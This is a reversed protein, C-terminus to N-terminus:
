LKVWRRTKYNFKMGKPKWLKRYKSKPKKEGTSRVARLGGKKDMRRMKAKAKLQQIGDRSNCEICEPLVEEGIKELLDPDEKLRWDAVTHGLHWDGTLKCKGRWCLGEAKEFMEARQKKTWRKRAM